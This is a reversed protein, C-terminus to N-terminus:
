SRTLGPSFLFVFLSSLLPSNFFSGLSNRRRPGTAIASPRRAAAAHPHRLSPFALTSLTRLLRRPVQHLLPRDGVETPESSRDRACTARRDVFLSVIAPQFSAFVDYSPSVSGVVHVNTSALPFSHALPHLMNSDLEELNANRRAQKRERRAGISRPTAPGLFRM